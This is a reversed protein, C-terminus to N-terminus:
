GVGVSTDAGDETKGAPQPVPVAGDLTMGTAWPLVRGGGERKALYLATDARRLVESWDEGTESMAVGASAGIRLWDDGWAIPEALRDIIAKVRRLVRDMSAAGPLILLFEDGGTRAVFDGERLGDRLIRTVERLVHDGAAHGFRDNVPKFGDLDIQVVSVLRGYLGSLAVEAGRRNRAGTLGDTLAKEEVRVMNGQLRSALSAVESLLINKAQYMYLLEVALDTVAFDSITLGFRQVAKVVGIGFSLNLLIGQGPGVPLLIGRFALDDYHRQRVQVPGGGQGRVDKWRVARKGRELLFVEDFSTDVDVARGLLRRLVPGASQVRGKGDLLLHM